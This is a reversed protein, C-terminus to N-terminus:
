IKTRRRKRNKGVVQSTTYFGKNINNYATTTTINNILSYTVRIACRLLFFVLISTM